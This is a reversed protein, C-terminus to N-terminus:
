KVSCPDCHRAYNRWHYNNLYKAEGVSGLVFKTFDKLGVVPISSANGSLSVGGTVNLVYKRTSIIRRFEHVSGERFIQFMADYYASLFRDMPHRVIMFKTYNQISTLNSTVRISNRRKNFESKTTTSTKLIKIWTTSSIKNINCYAVRREDNVRFFVKRRRRSSTTKKNDDVSGGCMKSRIFDKRQRQSCIRTFLPASKNTIMQNIAGNTQVILHSSVKVSQAFNIAKLKIQSSNNHMFLYTCAAAIVVFLLCSTSYKFKM